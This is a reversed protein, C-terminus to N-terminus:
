CFLTTLRSKITRYLDKFWNPLYEQALRRFIFSNRVIGFDFSPDIARLERFISYIALEYTDYVICPVPCEKTYFNSLRSSSDIGLLQFQHFHYFILPYDDVTITSLVPHRSFLYQSYNWPAVGAGLHEVIHCSKYDIPWTDLYKQDGMKGDELRYYCWELCQQRWRSLCALGEFDRRFSCWEVCFRGNVVRDSLRPSFRHEIIAISSTAIEDFIPEVSSFFYIDADLYTLLDIYKYNALVYWTFVSSLTWCYEAVTRSKKADLVEATEILSLPILIINQDNQSELAYQTYEDM